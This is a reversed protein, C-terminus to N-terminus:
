VIIRIFINILKRIADGTKIKSRYELEKGISVFMIIIGASEFYLHHYESNVAMAYISYAVSAFSGIAVLSNMNPHLKFLSKVGDFILERGFFLIPLLLVLQIYANITHNNTVSKLGIMQGMATYLLLVSFVCIFILNYNLKKKKLNEDENDIFFGCEKVVSDIESMSAINKDYEFTATNTAISVSVNSIGDTKSLEKELYASCSACHMGGIKLTIKEM